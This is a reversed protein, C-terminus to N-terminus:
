GALLHYAAAGGEHQRRVLGLRQHLYERELENRLDRHVDLRRNPRVRQLVARSYCQGATVWAPQLVPPWVIPKVGGPPPAFAILRAGDSRGGPTPKPRTQQGAGRSRRRSSLVWVG